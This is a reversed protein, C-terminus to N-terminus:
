IGLDSNFCCDLERVVNFVIYRTWCVGLKQLLEDRYEDVAKFAWWNKDVCGWLLYSWRARIILLM